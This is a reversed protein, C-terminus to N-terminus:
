GRVATDQRVRVVGGKRHRFMALLLGIEAVIFLCVFWPFPDAVPEFGHRSPPSDPMDLGTLNDDALALVYRALRQTNVPTITRRWPPCLNSKGHVGSGNRIAEILYDENEGLATLNAPKPSLESPWLRGGGTGNEGHCHACYHDYIMGATALEMKRHQERRNILEQALGTQAAFFVAVVVFVGSQTHPRMM